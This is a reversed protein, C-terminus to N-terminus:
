HCASFTITHGIAIANGATGANSISKREGPIPSLCMHPLWSFGDRVEHSFEGISKCYYYCAPEASGDVLGMVMIRQQREKDVIGDSVDLYAFNFEVYAQFYQQSAFLLFIMRRKWKVYEINIKEWVTM